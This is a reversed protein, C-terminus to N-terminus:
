SVATGSLLPVFSVREIVEEDYHSTDGQRTIVRLEQDGSPGVPIVLIGDPALQHLLEDPVEEPAATTIIADYPAHERWGVTGDSYAAMINRLRLKKFLQQAKQLLPKIREVTYVEDILQALIAAQYGSGTGVELVKRRPGQSLLVETMRAVIFPQSITQDAGIPFAKDQYAHDIFGSDMFLHRPVTEIADLVEKNIIGKSAVVQTLQKRM